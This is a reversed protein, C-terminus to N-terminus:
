LQGWARLPGPFDAWQEVVRHQPVSMPIASLSGPFASVFPRRLRVQCLMNYVFAISASLMDSSSETDRRDEGDDVLLPDAFLDIFTQPPLSHPRPRESPCASPPAPSASHLAKHLM